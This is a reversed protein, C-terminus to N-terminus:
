KCNFTQKIAKPIFSMPHLHRVQPNNKLYIIIADLLQSMRVDEGLCKALSPDAMELADYIGAIYGLLYQRKMSGDPASASGLLTNGTEVTAQSISFHLGIFFIVIVKTLKKITM